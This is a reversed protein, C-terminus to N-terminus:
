IPLKFGDAFDFIWDAPPIGTIFRLPIGTYGLDTLFDGAADPDEVPITIAVIEGHPKPFHGPALRDRLFPVYDCVFFDIPSPETPFLNTCIRQPTQSEAESFGRLRLLEPNPEIKEFRRAPIKGAVADLSTPEFVMTDIYGEKPPDELPQYLELNLGGPAIGSTLASPWFPGIPWAEAFGMKQLSRHAREIDPVRCIVHDLRAFAM